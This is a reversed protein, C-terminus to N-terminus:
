PVQSRLETLLRTKGVGADGALLVARTGGSADDLLRDLASLEARRGVLTPASPASDPM